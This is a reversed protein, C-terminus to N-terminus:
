GNCNEKRHTGYNNTKKHCPVCLTRGNSVEYRLDQNHAFCKIHDANLQGGSTCLVCTYNDREFVAKRWAKHIATGWLTRHAKSKGHEYMWNKKGTRNQSMVKIRNDTLMTLGKNWPSCGLRSPRPPMPLKLSRCKSSCFRQKNYQQRKTLEKNCYECKEM